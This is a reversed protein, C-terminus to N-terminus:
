LEGRKRLTETKRKYAAILARNNVHSVTDRLDQAIFALTRVDGNVMAIYIDEDLADALDSM